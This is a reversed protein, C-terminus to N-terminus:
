LREVSELLEPMFSSRARVLSQRQARPRVQLVEGLPAITDGLVADDDFAYETVENKAGSKLSAPAPPDAAAPAAASLVGFLVASVSFSRM